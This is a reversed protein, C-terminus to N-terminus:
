NSLKWLKNDSRVLIANQTIAPSCLITADLDVTHIVEPKESLLNVVQGLGNESFVYLHEETILPSSSIPGKLRLRWKIKGTKVSACSLVNANNIVSLSGRHCSPSGTGPKLKNDEWIQRFNQLNDNLQLATIGNSPVLIIGQEAWASSPITSAGEQYEWVTEGTRPEIATMGEKSQLGVLAQGKKTMIVPSTWNASKPRQKKWVTIGNTLDLGFTFSDADNEVQAIAVGNVIVPSSSMGLGNAINPHDFTLGRVWKLNGALDLCFIDNSSFQAIIVKEDSALTSAAVCTKKHCVTRGTAKFTRQWQQLGDISSYALIHLDEQYPGSSATLYITDGIVIPSSLGRGPIDQAWSKQGTIKLKAPISLDSSGNGASGRFCLWDAQASLLSLSLFLLNCIIKM